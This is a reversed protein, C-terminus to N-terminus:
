KMLKKDIETDNVDVLMKVNKTQKDTEVSKKKREKKQKM